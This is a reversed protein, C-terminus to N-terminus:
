PAWRLRGARKIDFRVMPPDGRLYVLLSAMVDDAHCTARIAAPPVNQDLGPEPGPEIEVNYSAHRFGRPAPLAYVQGNVAIQLGRIGAQFAPDPRRREWEDLQSPLALVLTTGSAQSILLKPLM